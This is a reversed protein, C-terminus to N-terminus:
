KIKMDKAMDLIFPTTFDLHLDHAYLENTKKDYGWNENLTLDGFQGNDQDLGVRKLIGKLKKSVLEDAGNYIELEPMTVMLALNDEDDKYVVVQTDPHYLGEEIFKKYVKACAITDDLADQFDDYRSPNIRVVPSWLKSTLKVYLDKNAIKWVGSRKLHKEIGKKIPLNKM